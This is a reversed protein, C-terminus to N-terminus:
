SALRTVQQSEQLQEQFSINIRTHVDKTTLSMKSSSLWLLELNQKITNTKKKRVYSYKETSTSSRSQPGHESFVQAYKRHM